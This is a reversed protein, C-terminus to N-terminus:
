NDIPAVDIPAASNTNNSSDDVPFKDLYAKDCFSAVVANFYQNDPNDFVVKGNDRKFVFRSFGAYAGYSNKSNVEGCNGIVNRFRASEGDKLMYKVADEVKKLDAEKEAKLQAETESKKELDIEEQSKSCASVLSLVLLTLILKKM